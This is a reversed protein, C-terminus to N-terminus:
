VKSHQSETAARGLTRAESWLQDLLGTLQDERGGDILPLYGAALLCHLLHTILSLKCGSCLAYM